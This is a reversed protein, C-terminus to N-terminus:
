YLIVYHAMLLRCLNPSSKYSFNANHCELFLVIQDCQNHFYYKELLHYNNLGEYNDFYSKGFQSLSKSGKRRSM